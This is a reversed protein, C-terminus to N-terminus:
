FLCIEKSLVKNWFARPRSGDQWAVVCIVKKLKTAGRHTQHGTVTLVAYKASVSGYGHFLEEDNRM